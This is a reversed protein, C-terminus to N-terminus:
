VKYNKKIQKDVEAQKDEIELKAKFRLTELDEKMLEVARTLLYDKANKKPDDLVEALLCDLLCGFKPSPELKLDNILNDGNIALMKVSVPDHQVKEMMYQLHRLKYPMAKPTGSGLRDAVRLDILDKLNERGTKAILRRVSAATVEGVNYYFMHNKVLNTVREIDATPFKLRTMIKKTLKAGAYEHNYFTTEGNKIARTVPKGIDHLLAALRVTWEQSPCFELSKVSHDYVTFVHHHNQSMGYGVVLEPLIYNLLKTDYLAEIGYAPKASSLIKILEDKIRENAIFKLSGSLKVIARETKPEIGFSLQCAFRVARMMRLGDEKFRITPEGVARIIKKKIDKQGGFIDVLIYPEGALEIISEFDKLKVGGSDSVPTLAMANITFDRRGLDAELTDEFVVQDPRRHDSYGTESRYTTVEAIDTTAGAENKNKVIVTGFSNEYVSDPFVVMIQEPRANTTIDWDKPTKNMLLDRVSGGVVYAEYGSKTLDKIIKVIFEPFIM